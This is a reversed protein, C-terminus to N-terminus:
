EGAGGAGPTGGRACPRGGGRHSGVVGRRARAGRASRWMPHREARAAPPPAHRPRAPMSPSAEAQTAPGEGASLPSAGAARNLTSKVGMYPDLEVSAGDMAERGGGRACRVAEGEIRVPWAAGPVLAACPAGCRTASRGPRRPGAGPLAAVGAGGDLTSKAGMHPDLEVSAGHVARAAADRRGVVPRLGSGGISRDLRSSRAGIRNEACSDAGAAPRRSRARVGRRAPRGPPHSGGV